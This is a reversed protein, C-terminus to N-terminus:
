MWLVKCTADLIQPHFMDYMDPGYGGVNVEEADLVRLIDDCSLKLAGLVDFLLKYNSCIWSYTM